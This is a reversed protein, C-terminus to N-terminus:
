YPSLMQTSHPPTLCLIFRTAIVYFRGLAPTTKDDNHHDVLDPSKILGIRPKQQRYVTITNIHVGGNTTIAPEHVGHGSAM